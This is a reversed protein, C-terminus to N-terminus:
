VKVAHNTEAAHAAEQRKAWALYVGSWIGAIILYMMVLPIRQQPFNANGITLAVAPHRTATALALTHRNGSQRGGGLVHGVILGTVAFVNLILVTGDGILSYMAGAMGILVPLASVILLVLAVVALPKAIREAFAPFLTRVGIGVLLPVLVTTLVTTFVAIPKITLPANSIRVVIEMAIPILIVSLIAAATLLGITYTETGGAKFAKNPFIPPVPSVSIAILAIRLAPNLDFVLGLIVALLPMVVNMSVVASVLQAPRRFLYTTDQFTSKLGIAFVSLVISAKLILLIIEAMKM